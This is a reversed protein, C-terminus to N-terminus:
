PKPPSVHMPGFTDEGKGTQRVELYAIGWQIAKLFAPMLPRIRDRVCGYRATDSTPDRDEDLLTTILNPHDQIVPTATKCLADAEEIDRRVFAADSCSQMVRIYRRMHIEAISCRDGTVPDDATDTSAAVNAFAMAAILATMWSKRQM